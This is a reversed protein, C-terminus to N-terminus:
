ADATVIHVGAPVAIHDGDVYGRLATTVDTVLAARRDADLRAIQEAIPLSALHGPLFHAPLPPLTMEITPRVRVNQFGASAVLRHLEGGDHLADAARMM